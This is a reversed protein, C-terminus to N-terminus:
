ADAFQKGEMYDYVPNCNYILLASVSGSNMEDMLM